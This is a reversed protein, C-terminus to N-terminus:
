RRALAVFWVARRAMVGQPHAFFLWPDANISARSADLMVDSADGPGHSNQRLM